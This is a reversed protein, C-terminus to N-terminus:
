KARQSQLWPSLSPPPKFSSRASSRLPTIPHSCDRNLLPALSLVFLLLWEYHHSSILHPTYTPLTFPSPIADSTLTGRKPLSTTTLDPLSLVFSTPSDLYIELLNLKTLSEKLCLIPAYLPVAGWWHLITFCSTALLISPQLCRCIPPLMKEWGALSADKAECQSSQVRLLWDPKPAKFIISHRSTFPQM